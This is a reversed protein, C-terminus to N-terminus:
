WIGGIDDEAHGVGITDGGRSKDLLVYKPRDTKLFSKLANFKEKKRSFNDEVDPIDIDNDELITKIFKAGIVGDRLLSQLVMYDLSTKNKKEILMTKLDFFVQPHYTEGELTIYPACCMDVKGQKSPLFSGDYSSLCALIIGEVDSVSKHFSPRLVFKRRSPGCKEDVSQLVLSLWYDRDDEIQDGELVCKLSISEKSRFILGRYKIIGPAIILEGEKEEIGAGLLIGDDYKEYMISAFNRSFDSLEQLMERTLIAGSEFSLSIDFFM